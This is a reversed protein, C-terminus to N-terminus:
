NYLIKNYKNLIINIKEKKKTLQEIEYNLINNGGNQNMCKISEDCKKFAKKIIKIDCEYFDKKNKIRYNYLMSRLCTEYQLPCLVEKILIINKKYITHTNYINKRKKMNDTKGLRYINDQEDTYDIIYVLSGNPYLEIKLENKLKNNQKELFKIKNM